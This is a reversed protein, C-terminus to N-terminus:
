RGAARRACHETGHGQGGLLGLVKGGGGRGGEDGGGKGCRDLDVQKKEHAREDRGAGGLGAGEEIFAQSRAPAMSVMHSGPQRAM